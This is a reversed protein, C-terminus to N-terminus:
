PTPLTVRSPAFRRRWWLRLGIAVLAVVALGGASVLIRGPLGAIQGSHVQFAERLAVDGTTGGDAWDAALPEGTCDDIYLWSPGLGYRPNSGAEGVAVVFVGLQPARGIRYAWAADYHSAANRVGAAAATEFTLRSGCQGHDIQVPLQAAPAPSITVLKSIVPRFLPEKLNLMAGTLAIVLSLAALWLGGARHLQYNRRLADGGSRVSLVRAWTERRLSQRPWALALGFCGHVFWLLAAGGLVLKGAEGPTHLSYHLSYLFPIVNRRAPELKGWLRTGLVRGNAPDVFAQDYRPPSGDASATDLLVTDQGAHPLHVETIVMGQLQPAVRAVLADVSLDPGVGSRHFLEPNLAADLEREFALLSGTLGSMLLLAALSLGVYRHMWALAGRM